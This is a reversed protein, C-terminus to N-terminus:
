REPEEEEGSGGASRRRQERQEHAIKLLGERFFEQRRRLYDYPVEYADELKERSLMQDVPGLEPSGQAPLLLVRDAYRRSIDLEHLSYLVSMGSEGAFATLYDMVREKQYQELAFIPEDMLLSKSGYLVAFAIIVRQMEGKSLQQLRRRLTGELELVDRLESILGPAKEDFHGQAYVTELLDGVPADTEFEMNQYIFSAYRNRESEERLQTTERGFLRVSGGSPIIRGGALLLFTTKGAGNPGVLATVGEPVSLDVGSFVPPEDERYGYEVRSFRVCEESSM